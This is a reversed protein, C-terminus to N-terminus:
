EVTVAVLIPASQVIKSTFDMYLIEVDPLPNEV